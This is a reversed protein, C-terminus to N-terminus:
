AKLTFERLHFFSVYAAGGSYQKIELLDGSSIPIDIHCMGSGSTGNCGGSWAIEQGNIYAIINGYQDQNGFQGGAGLISLKIKNCTLTKSLMTVLAGSARGKTQSTPIEVYPRMAKSLQDFASLGFSNLSEFTSIPPTIIKMDDSAWHAIEMMQSSTGITTFFIAGHETQIQMGQLAKIKNQSNSDVAFWVDVGAPIETFVITNGAGLDSLGDFGNLETTLDFKMVM